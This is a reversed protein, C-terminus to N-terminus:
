PGGVMGYTWVQGEDDRVYIVVPLGAEWSFLVLRKM